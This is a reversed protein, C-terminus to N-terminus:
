NRVDLKGTVCHVLQIRELTLDHRPSYPRNSTQVHGNKGLPTELMARHRDFAQTAVQRRAFRSIPALKQGEVVLSAALHIIEGTWSREKGLRVQQARDISEKRADPVWHRQRAADRRM